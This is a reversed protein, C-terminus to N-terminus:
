KNKGRGQQLYILAFLIPLSSPSLLSLEYFYQPFIYVCCEKELPTPSLTLLHTLLIKPGDKDM